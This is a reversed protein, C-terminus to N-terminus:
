VGEGKTVKEMIARYFHQGDDLIGMIRYDASNEDVEDDIHKVESNKWVLTGVIFPYQGKHYTIKAIARTEGGFAQLEEQTLTGSITNMFETPEDYGEKTEGGKVAVQEGDPMTRYVINGESDTLYIPESKHFNSYFMKQKVRRATRM